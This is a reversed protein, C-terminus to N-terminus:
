AEVENRDTSVGTPKMKVEVRAGQAAEMESKYEYINTENSMNRRKKKRRQNQDAPFNM